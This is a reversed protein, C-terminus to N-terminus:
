NADKTEESDTSELCQTWVGQECYQIGQFCSKVGNAQQVYVSCTRRSAETDCAGSQTTAGFFPLAGGEGSYADYNGASDDGSCGCAFALLLSAASHRMDIRFAPLTWTHTIRM